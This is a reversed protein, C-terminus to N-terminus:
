ALKHGHVAWSLVLGNREFERGSGVRTRGEGGAGWGVGLRKMAMRLMM